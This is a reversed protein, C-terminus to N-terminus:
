RESGRPADLAANIADRLRQAESRAAAAFDPGSSAYLVSRSANVLLGGGEADLGAAVAAALDGGQAGIGPLLILLDPCRRRVAALAEVDSAGVVLGANEHPRGWERALSAVRLYLPEGQTARDQLDAAGPNSTRCLVFTTKEARDFFPRLSDGGMYPSVTVADAGIVDFCAVAYAAASHGIDGRKGDLIVPIGDPVAAVTDALTRWGDLGLAEYFASNPKYACVLDATADIIARHFATVDAIPIQSPQPDLGVCLLSHNRAAAARLKERFTM